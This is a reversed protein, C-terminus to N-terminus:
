KYKQEFESEPQLLVAPISVLDVFVSLIIIFPAALISYFPKLYKEIGGEQRAISLLHFSNFVIKIYMIPSLAIQFLLIFSLYMLVIM